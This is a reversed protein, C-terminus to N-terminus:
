PGIRNFGNLALHFPNHAGITAHVIKQQSNFAMFEIDFFFEESEEAMLDIVDEITRWM